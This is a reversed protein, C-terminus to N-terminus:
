EPVSRTLLKPCVSALICDSCLPNTKKCWKQGIVWAPYDLAGPYQPNLVQAAKIVEDLSDNDVLGTRIFVRRVHIDYSVDIGQREKDLIPIGYDRVLMNVAMSAKKQGIQPIEDFRNEIDKAYLSGKWIQRADGNYRDVIFKCARIIQRPMKNVYPHLAKPTSMIKKLESEDIQAIKNVDLHGLRNRLEDPAAWALEWRIHEDFIVRLVFELPYENPDKDEEWDQSEEKMVKEADNEAFNILKDRIANKDM